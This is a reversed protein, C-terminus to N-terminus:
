LHHLVFSNMNTLKQVGPIYCLLFKHTQSKLIQINKNLCYKVFGEGGRGM